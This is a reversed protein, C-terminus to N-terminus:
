SPGTYPTSARDRNCPSASAMDLLVPRGLLPDLNEFPITQPHLLHIARLTDPNATRPGTYGIRELYANLDFSQM